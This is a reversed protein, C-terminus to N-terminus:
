TAISGHTAALIGSTATSSAHCAITSWLRYIDTPLEHDSGHHHRLEGRTFQDRFRSAADVDWVMRLSRGIVGICGKPDTVMRDYSVTVAPWAPDAGEFQAEVHERWLALGRETTIGNRAALSRAVAMPHRIVHVVSVECGVRAFVPRWFPLLRCMRPEKIALLPFQALKAALMRSAWASLDSLIPNGADAFRFSADWTLRYRRLVAEDITLVAQSEWHGTVNDHGGWASDDGLSVGLCELSKTILSTGSRHMGLVLILRSV